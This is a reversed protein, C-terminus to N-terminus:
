PTAEKEVPRQRAPLPKDDDDFLIREADGSLDEYQGSRLSWMFALLGVIGMLLTVPILFLLVNM